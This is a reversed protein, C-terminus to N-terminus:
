YYVNYLRETPRVNQPLNTVITTNSNPNGNNNSGGNNNTNDTPISNKIRVELNTILLSMDNQFGNLIQM